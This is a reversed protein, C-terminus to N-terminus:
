WTCTRAVLASPVPEHDSEPLPLVSAFALSAGVIEDSFTFLQGCRSPCSSTYPNPSVITNM